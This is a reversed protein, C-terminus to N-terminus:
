GQPTEGGGRSNVGAELTSSKNCGKFHVMMKEVGPIGATETGVAKDLRPSGMLRCSM